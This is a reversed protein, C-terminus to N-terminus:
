QPKNHSESNAISIARVVSPLAFSARASDFRVSQRDTGDIVAVSRAEPSDPEVQCSRLTVTAGTGQEELAAIELEFRSQIANSSVMEGLFEGFVERVKM